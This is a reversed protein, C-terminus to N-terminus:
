RKCTFVTFQSTSFKPSELSLLTLGTDGHYKNCDTESSKEENTYSQM